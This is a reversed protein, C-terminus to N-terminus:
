IELYADVETFTWYELVCCWNLVNEFNLMFGFEITWQSTAFAEFCIQRSYVHSNSAQITAVTPLLPHHLDYYLIM